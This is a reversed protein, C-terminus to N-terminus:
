SNTHGEREGEREAVQEARDGEADHQRARGAPGIQARDAGAIDAGGIHQAGAALREGGGRKEAVHELAGGRNQQGRM